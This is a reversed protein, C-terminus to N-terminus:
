LHTILVTMAKIVNTFNILALSTQRDLKYIYLSVQFDEHSNFMYAFRYM